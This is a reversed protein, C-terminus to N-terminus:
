ETTASGQQSDASDETSAAIAGQGLDSATDPTVGGLKVAAPNDIVPRIQQEGEKSTSPPESQATVNAEQPQPANQTLQAANPIAEASASESGVGTAQGDASQLLPQGSVNNGPSAQGQAQDANNSQSTSVVGGSSSTGPMESVGQQTSTSTPAPSQAQSMGAPLQTPDAQSQEPAQETSSSRGPKNTGGSDGGTVKKVVKETKDVLKTLKGMFGNEDQQDHNSNTPQSTNSQTDSM